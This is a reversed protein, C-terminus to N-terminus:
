SYQCHFLSQLHVGYLEPSLSVTEAKQTNIDFYIKFAQVNHLSKQKNNNTAQNMFTSIIGSKQTQYKKLIKAVFFFMVLQPKNLIM